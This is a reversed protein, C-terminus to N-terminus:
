ELSKKVLAHFKDKILHAADSHAKELPHTSGIPYKNEIAWQYFGRPGITEDANNGPPFLYCSEWNIQNYLSRITIDDKHRFYNEHDLFTNNAFTFLYPIQNIQLYQQLFVIEKLSTYLEYFENNGVHKYFTQAFDTIGANNLIKKNNWFHEYVENTNTQIYSQITSVDDVIDWLNISYWPSSSRNFNYNFRFEYRHTFTWMVFVFIDKKTLQECGAITQRAIANNANGSNALCHYEIHADKALLAPITSLSPLSGIQDKLEAGFTFSDGGAVLIM